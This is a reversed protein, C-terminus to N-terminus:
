SKVAITKVFTSQVSFKKLYALSQIAITGHVTSSSNSSLDDDRALSFSIANVQGKLPVSFASNVLGEIRQADKEQIYIAGTKPDPAKKGVGISLQGILVQYALACALNMTRVHQLWVFDSGSPSLVNANCIYVGQPGGPAFSRLSVLRLGDLTPVLDEDHWRLNGRGDAISAGSLNGRGVFAPDEGVPILMARAALFLATPRPQSIGTLTSTLDAADTGVCLRISADNQTLTTMAAAYATESEATPVPQTKHRTNLLAFHFQGVDELGALWTDVVGVTGTGYVADILAGEWGQRTMSLATLSTSLDSNNPQARTTFCQYTAGPTLTGAGFQLEALTTGDPANLPVPAPTTPALAKVGSTSDGGDLSYTYTIGSSGVTGGAIITVLIDYEDFPLGGTTVGTCASTGTGANATISGYASAVSTVPKVPIVPLGGIQLCYSAYDTLPGYGYDNLVLDDRAYSGPTNTTGTASAAIIAMMGTPQPAVAGTAFDSKKISVSPLMNSSAYAGPAGRGM